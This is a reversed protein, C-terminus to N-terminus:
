QAKTTDTSIGFRNINPESELEAREYQHVHSWSDLEQQRQELLASILHKCVITDRYLTQGIHPPIRDTLSIYVCRDEIAVKEASILAWPHRNSTCLVPKPYVKTHCKFKKDTRLKNSGEWLLKLADINKACARVEEGLYLKSGPLNQFYFDSGCEQSIFYGIDKEPLHSTFLKLLLSKGTSAPGHLFICNRKGNATLLTDLINSLNQAIIPTSLIERWYRLELTM